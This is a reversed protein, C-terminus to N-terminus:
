GEIGHKVLVLSFVEKANYMAIDAGDKIITFFKGDYRYDDWQEDPIVIEGGGIFTIKLDIKDAIKGDCLVSNDEVLSWDDACIDDSTFEAVDRDDPILKGFRDLLVEDTLDGNEDRKNMAYCFKGNYFAFFLPSGNLSPRQVFKGELMAKLAEEFKM